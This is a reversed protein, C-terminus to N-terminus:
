HVKSGPEIGGQRNNSEKEKKRWSGRFTEVLNKFNDILVEVVM